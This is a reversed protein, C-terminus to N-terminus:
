DKKIIEKIEEITKNTIKSIIDLEINNDVMSKIYEKSTEQNGIKVGKDYITNESWDAWELAEEKTMFLDETTIENLKDMILNCEKETLIGETISPIKSIDTCYILARWRIYKPIEENSETYYVESCKVVNLM